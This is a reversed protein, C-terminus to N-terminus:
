SDLVRRCHISLCYLNPVKLLSRKGKRERCRERDTGGERVCVSEKDSGLSTQLIHVLNTANAHSYLHLAYYDLLEM